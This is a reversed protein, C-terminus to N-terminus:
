HSPRGHTAYVDVFQNRVVSLHPVLGVAQRLVDYGSSDDRLARPAASAIPTKDIDFDVAQGQDHIALDYSRVREVLVYGFPHM